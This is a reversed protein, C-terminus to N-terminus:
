LLFRDAWLLSLTALLLSASMWSGMGQGTANQAEQNWSELVKREELAFSTTEARHLAGIFLFILMQFNEKTRGWLSKPPPLNRARRGLSVETIERRLLPVFRYALHVLLSLEQQDIGLLKLPRLLNIGLKIAESPRTTLFFLTTLLTIFVLRAAYLGGTHLGQWSFVPSLVGGQHHNIYAGALITFLALLNVPRLSRWFLKQPLGAKYSLLGILCGLVLFSTASKLFFTSVAVGLFLVAKCKVGARHLPSTGEVYRGLAIEDLFSGSV